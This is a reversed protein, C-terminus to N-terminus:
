KKTEQPTEHKYRFIYGKHQAVRGRCVMVIAGRYGGVKLAAESLSDFEDIKRMSLDYRIVPRRDSAVLRPRVVTKYEPHYILLGEIKSHSIALENSIKHYSAGKKYLKFAKERLIKNEKRVKAYDDAVKKSAAFKEKRIAEKLALTRSKEEAVDKIHKLRSALAEQKQKEREVIMEKTIAGGEYATYIGQFKLHHLITTHNKDMYRAIASASYGARHMDAIMKKLVKMPGAQRGTPLSEFIPKFEKEWM